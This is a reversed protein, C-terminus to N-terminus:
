KKVPKTRELTERVKAVVLAIESLTLPALEWVVSTNLAELIAGARALTDRLMIVKDSDRM